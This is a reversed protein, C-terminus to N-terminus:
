YVYNKDNFGIRDVVYDQAFITASTNEMGGYLFDWVPVQRYVQWPYPVGIEKELYDFIEKSYRYTPEFKDADSYHYYLENLIGSDSTFTQKEFKGIALMVL